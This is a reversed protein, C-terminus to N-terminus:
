LMRLIICFFLYIVDDNDSLFEYLYLLYFGEPKLDIKQVIFILKL